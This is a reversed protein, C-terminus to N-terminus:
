PKRRKGKGDDAWVASADHTEVYHQFGMEKKTDEDKGPAAISMLMDEQEEVRRNFREAHRTAGKSITKLCFDCVPQGSKFIPKGCRGCNM